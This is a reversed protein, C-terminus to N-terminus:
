RVTGFLAKVAASPGGANGPKHTSGNAGGTGGVGPGPRFTSRRMHPRKDLYEKVLQRVTAPKNDKDLLVTGDEAKAVVKLSPKGTDEDFVIEASLRGQLATVIDSYQGKEPGDVDMANEAAAAERLPATIAFSNVMSRLGAERRNYEQTKTELKRQYATQLERERDDGAKKKDKGTRGANLLEQVSELGKVQYPNESDGTEVIEIDDPDLGLATIIALKEKKATDRAKIMRKKDDDDGAGGAGGNGPNPPTGGGNGGGGEGGDPAFLIRAYGLGLASAGAHRAQQHMLM